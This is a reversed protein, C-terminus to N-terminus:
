DVPRHTLDAKQKARFIYVFEENFIANRDRGERCISLFAHPPAPQVRHLRPSLFLLSPSLSSAQREARGEGEQAVAVTFMMGFM